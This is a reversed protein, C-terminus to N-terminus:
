LLTFYHLRLSRTTSVGWKRCIVPPKPAAEGRCVIVDVLLIYYIDIGQDRKFQHRRQQGAVAAAAPVIPADPHPGAIENATVTGSALVVAKPQHEDRDSHEGNGLLVVAKRYYAKLQVVDSVFSFRIGLSGQITRALERM